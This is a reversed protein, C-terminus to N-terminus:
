NHERLMDRFAILDHITIADQYGGDLTTLEFNDISEFDSLEPFSDWRDGDEDIEDLVAGKIDFELIYEDSRYDDIACDLAELMRNIIPNSM